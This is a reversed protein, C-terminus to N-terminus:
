RDTLFNILRSAENKTTVIKGFNDYKLYELGGIQKIYWVQKATAKQESQRWETNSRLLHMPADRNILYSEAMTFATEMPVSNAINKRLVSGDEKEYIHYASYAQMDENVVIRIRGRRSTALTYGFWRNNVWALGNPSMQDVQRTEYVGEIAKEFELENAALRPRPNSVMDRVTREGDAESEDIGFLDTPSVVDWEESVCAVDLILCDEKGDNIRTGRGIMQRLLLESTTPRALILCDISPMDFGETLIGCNTLVSIEGNRFADLIERREDTGMTSDIGDALIGRDRFSQALGHVHAIDACFVLTRQRELAYEKWFDTVMTNGETTNLLDGLEHCNLDGATARVGDIDIGSSRRMIRLDCLYQPMFEMIDRSYSVIDYIHGLGQKDTRNPTATLGLHLKTPGNTNKVYTGGRNELLGCAEYIREYSKARAHHAEDTIVVDYDMLGRETLDDLRRKHMSQVSAVTVQSDTENREAKIVGIDVGDWVDGFTNVAQEILENRHALMLVRGDQQAIDQAITAGVVTKGTGTPLTVLQNQYAAMHMKVAEIGEAQYPRLEVSM